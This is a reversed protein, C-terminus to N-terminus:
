HRRDPPAASTARKSTVADPPGKRPRVRSWSAATRTSSARAWGVHDIPGFIVTSEDVKIFLPSSTISAWSSKSMGKSRMSTTTWGWDITCEITSYVSPATIAGAAPERVHAKGNPIGQGVGVAQRHREAGDVPLRQGQKLELLGVAGHERAEVQGIPGTSLALQGRCPQVCGVLHRHGGEEVTPNPQDVM